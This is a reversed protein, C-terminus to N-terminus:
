LTNIIAPTDQLVLKGSFAEKYDEQIALLAQGRSGGVDMIYPQDQSRQAELAKLDHFPFMGIVPFNKAINQLTINWLGRQKLDTDLVEYYTIGEMGATFTFPTKRIDYLEQPKHTSYYKPM